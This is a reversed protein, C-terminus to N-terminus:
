GRFLHGGETKEGGGQDDSVGAFAMEARDPDKQFARWLPKQPSLGLQNLLRCVSAKSLRIRFQRDIMEGVMRSTWLAFSFRLQRPDKTTVTEYVWKLQAADRKPRRGGRRHARLANWGGARYQALWGFVTSVGVGPIRAVMAPSEGDQVATVGRRRVDTLQDRKLKRADTAKM